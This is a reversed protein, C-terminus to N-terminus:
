AAPEVPVETFTAFGAVFATVDDAQGEATSTCDSPALADGATASAVDVEGRLTGVDCSPVNLNVVVDAPVEGAILDARQEEVWGVVIEAAEPYDFAQGAGQSVALAPVGLRAAARAAGVTGSVDVVPGLNQGANIGSIVLHPELGMDEVAVRITDAPFGDVATAEYGGATQAPATTVPGDTVRGGTGTRDDAPAVVTVEVGDITTLASVLTDIGDAAVGDDNTVVIRLPEDRAPTETPMSEREGSQAIARGDDDGGGCGAVVLAAAVAAALAGAPGSRRATV